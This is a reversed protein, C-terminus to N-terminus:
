EKETTDTNGADEEEEPIFKTRFGNENILELTLQSDRKLFFKLAKKDSPNDSLKLVAGAIVFRVRDGLCFLVSFSVGLIIALLIIYEVLAQGQSNIKKQKM